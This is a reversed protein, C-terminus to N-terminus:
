LVHARARTAKRTCTHAILIIIGLVKSSLYQALHCRNYFVAKKGKNKRSM